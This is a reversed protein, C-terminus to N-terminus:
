NCLFKFRQHQSSSVTVRDLVNLNRMMYSRSPSVAQQKYSILLSPLVTHAHQPAGPDLWPHLEKHLGAILEFIIKLFEPTKTSWIFPFLLAPDNRVCSVQLKAGARQFNANQGWIPALVTVLHSHVQSGHFITPSNLPRTSTVWLWMSVEKIKFPGKFFFFFFLVVRNPLM